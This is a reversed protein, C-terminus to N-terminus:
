PVARLELVKALSESATGAYINNLLNARCYAFCNIGLNSALREEGVTERSLPCETAGCYHDSHAVVAARVRLLNSQYPGFRAPSTTKDFADSVIFIISFQRAPLTSQTQM